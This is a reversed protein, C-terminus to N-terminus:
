SSTISMYCYKFNNFPTTFMENTVCNGYLLLMKGSKDCEAVFSSNVFKFKTSLAEYLNKSLQANSLKIHLSINVLTGEKVLKHTKPFMKHSLVSLPESNHVHYKGNSYVVNVDTPVFYLVKSGKDKFAKCPINFKIM